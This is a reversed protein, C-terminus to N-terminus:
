ATTPFFHGFYYTPVGVGGDAFGTNADAVISLMLNILPGLLTAYQDWILSQWPAVVFKFHYLVTPIKILIREIM